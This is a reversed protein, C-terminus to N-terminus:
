RQDDARVSSSAAGIEPQRLAGGLARITDLRQMGAATLVLLRHGQVYAEDALGSEVLRHVTRTVEGDGIRCGTWETIASGLEGYRMPREGLCVVAGIVHQYQLLERIELLDGFEVDGDGMSCGASSLYM